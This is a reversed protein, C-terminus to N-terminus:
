STCHNFLESRLTYAVSVLSSTYLAKSNASRSMSVHANKQQDKRLNQQLTDKSSHVIAFIFRIYARSLISIARDGSPQMGQDVEATVM